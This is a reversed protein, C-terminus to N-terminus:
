GGFAPILIDTIVYFIPFCLIIFVIVNAIKEEITRVDRLRESVIIVVTGILTGYAAFLWAAMITKIM